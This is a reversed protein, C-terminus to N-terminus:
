RWSDAGQRELGSRLHGLALRLRSRATDYTIGLAAAVERYTRGGYYALRVAARQEDPLRDLADLVQAVRWSSVVSVVV